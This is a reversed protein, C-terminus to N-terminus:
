RVLAWVGWAIQAPWLVHLSYVGRGWPPKRGGAVCVVYMIAYLAIVCICVERQAEPPWRTALLMVAGLFCNGTAAWWLWLLGFRGHEYPESVMETGRRMVWAALPEHHMAMLLFSGLLNYLGIWFLFEGM